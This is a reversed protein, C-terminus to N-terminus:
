DSPNAERPYRSLRQRRKDEVLLSRKPAFQSRKPPFVPSSTKDTILGEAGRIKGRYNSVRHKGGPGSKFKTESEKAMKVVPFHRNKGVRRTIRFRSQSFRKKKKLLDSSKMGSDKYTVSHLMGKNLRPGACPIHDSKELKQIKSSGLSHINAAVDRRSYEFRDTKEKFQWQVSSVTKRLPLQSSGLTQMLLLLTVFMPIFKTQFHFLSNTISM